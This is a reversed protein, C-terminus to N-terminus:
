ASEVDADHVCILSTRRGFSTHTHTEPNTPYKPSSAHTTTSREHALFPVSPTARERERERVYTSEPHPLCQCFFTPAERGSTPCLFLLLFLCHAPRAISTLQGTTPIATSDLSIQYFLKPHSQSTQVATTPFKRRSSKTGVQQAERLASACRSAFALQPPPLPPQHYGMPPAALPGDLLRGRDRM